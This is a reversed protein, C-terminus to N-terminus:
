RHDDRAALEAELGDYLVDTLAFLEPDTRGHSLARVVLDLGSAEPADFRGDGVDAEHVIEALRSLSTRDLDYEALFREFSCDGNRHSLEAGRMDFPTTDAPVDALEDYFAFEADLDLYRRILWVCATRDVHCHPRTAWKV